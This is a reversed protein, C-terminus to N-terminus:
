LLLCCKIIRVMYDPLVIYNKVIYIIIALNLVFPLIQIKTKYLRGFSIELILKREEM